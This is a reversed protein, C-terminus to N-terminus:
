TYRGKGSWYEVVSREIDQVNEQYGKPQGGRNSHKKFDRNMYWEAINKGKYSMSGSGLEVITEEKRDQIRPVPDKKKRTGVSKRRNHRKKQVKYVAGKNDRGEKSRERELEM